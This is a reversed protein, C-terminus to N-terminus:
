EDAKLRFWYFYGSRADGNHMWSVNYSVRGVCASVEVVHGRIEGDIVVRQGPLFHALIIESAAGDLESINPM